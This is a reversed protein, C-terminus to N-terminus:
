PREARSHNLTEKWVDEAATKLQVNFARPLNMILRKRVKSMEIQVDVKCIAKV